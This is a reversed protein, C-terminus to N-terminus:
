RPVWEALFGNFALRLLSDRHFFDFGILFYFVPVFPKDPKPSSGYTPRQFDSATKKKQYKEKPCAFSFYLFFIDAKKIM